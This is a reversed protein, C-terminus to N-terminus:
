RRRLFGFIDVFNDAIVDIVNETSQPSLLTYFESEVVNGEEDASKVKYQYVQGPKLNILVVVHNKTFEPQIPTASFTTDEKRLGEAYLVQSNATEDTKWTIITQVKADAGPYLTSQANVSLVQPSKTDKPISVLPLSTATSGGAQDHSVIRLVYRAGSKLGTIEVRHVTTSDSKGQSNAEKPLPYGGRDLPTYEVLSDTPLNTTWTVIMSKPTIEPVSPMDIRLPESKTKFTYVRSKGIVGVIGQSRVQYYYTIGPQLNNVNVIHETTKDAPNGVQLLFEEPTASNYQNAPSLAVISNSQRDTKWYFQATSATVEILPLGEVISPAPIGQSTTQILENLAAEQSAVSVQNQASTKGENRGTVTQSIKELLNQFTDAAKKFLNQQEKTTAPIKVNISVEELKEKEPQENNGDEEKKVEEEVEKKEAEIKKIEDEGLTAFTKIESEAENGNRDKSFVRVFYTTKQHLGELKIAHNMSYEGQAGKVEVYLKTPQNGYIVRSVADENTVWIVTGEIQTIDKIVIGTIIPKTIDPPTIAVGGGVNVTRVITEITGNESTDKRGNAIGNKESSRFSINGASDTSIVYYYYNTTGDAVTPDSYYNTNINTITTLLSYTGGSDSKRYIKYNVFGPSPTSIVSWSIFMKREAPTVDTNSVDALYLGSPVGPMTASVMSATNNKSDKIQAYVTEGSTMIWGSVSTAYTVFTGSTVNNADATLGSNNALKMTMSNDDTANITVNVTATSASGDVLLAVSTPAKTDLTFSSANASGFQYAANGDYSHVKAVLSGYFSAIDTAATWSISKGSGIPIGAGVNGSVTTAKIFVATGNSHTAGISSSVGRTITGTLDSGSKSTYTIIENEILITGSDPVNTTSSLTIATTDSASLSENVTISAPQYYLSITQSESEPDSVDYGITVTGSSSQSASVNAVVPPGNVVYTLTLDALMPTTAGGSDLFTKYQVYQDNSGINLPHGSAIAVNNKTTDFYNTGACTSGTDAYGCWNSWTSGDASSRIQFKITETASTGTATWAIKSVVNATSQTNYINGTITGSGYVNYAMTIDSLTPTTTTDATQFYAKYKVYRSGNLGSPIATGSSSFYTGSTGDSGVYNWTSNDTNGAIQFRLPNAGTAAPITSTWTLNGFSQTTKGLDITASVFNGSSAYTTQSITYRYFATTQDAPLYYVSSRASEQAFVMGNTTYYSASWARPVDLLQSWTNSAISYTWFGSGSGQGLYFVGNASDYVFGAGNKISSPPTAKASWENTSPNYTYLYTNTNSGFLVYFVSGTTYYHAFNGYTTQVTRPTASLTEWSNGSISYRYFNTTGGGAFVYIYNDGPVRFVASGSTITGPADTLPAIANTSITYKKFTATAGGYVIYINDSTGDRSLAYGNSVSGGISASATCANSTISYNYVSNDGSGLLFIQDDTGNRIMGMGRANASGACTSLTTWTNTSITYTYMGSNAGGRWVFVRDEGAAYGIQAGSGAAGTLASLTSTISSIWANGSISYRAFTNSSGAGILYIYDETGARFMSVGQYPAFPVATMTAWSNGSISYRYFSTQNNARAVYIYNESGNRTMRIGGWDTSGPLSTLTNWSNGSISYSYFGTSGNALLLYILDDTGNWVMNAGTGTAIPLTALTSWSNGSISYSYFATSNGPQVYITDSSGNRLMIGEYFALSPVNTLTSWSNDSISYKYFSNQNGARLVYIDNDTGNRIMYKGHGVGAPVVTLTTWSNGSISYRYFGTSGNGALVYIYDEGGNWIMSLGYSNVAAPVSTLTTWTNASISYTYFGTGGVGQVVYVADGTGNRVAATGAGTNGPIGAIETSWSNPSTTGGQLTVTASADSGNVQTSTNAGSGFGSGTASGTTTLTGDDTATYSSTALTIDNGVTVNSDKDSYETWGAQNSTHTATTATQTNWATQSFTYNTTRGQEWFSAVAIVLVFMVVM